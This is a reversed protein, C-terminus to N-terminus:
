EIGPSTAIGPAIPNFTIAQFNIPNGNVLNPDNPIPLAVKNSGVVVQGNLPIPLSGFSNAILWTGFPTPVNARGFGVAVSAILANPDHNIMDLEATTGIVPPLTTTFEPAKQGSLPSGQGYTM